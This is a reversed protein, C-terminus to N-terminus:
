AHVATANVILVGTHRERDFGWFRVQLARLDRPPVPCGHHWSKGLQKATVRAVGHSDFQFGSSAPTAQRGFASVVQSSFKNTDVQVTPTQSGSCAAPAALTVAVLGTLPSAM